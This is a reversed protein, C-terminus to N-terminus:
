KDEKKLDGFNKIQNSFYDFVKQNEKIKPELKSFGAEEIQRIRERTLGYIEGIAELTKREQNKLGFRLEIIERQRQPLDKILNQCIKQYNLNM